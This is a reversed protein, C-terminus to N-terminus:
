VVSKRDAGGARLLALDDGARHRSHTVRGGAVMGNPRLCGIPRSRGVRAPGEAPSPRRHRWLRGVTTPRDAPVPGANASEPATPLVDPLLVPHHPGEAGGQASLVAVS